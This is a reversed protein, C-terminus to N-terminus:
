REACSNCRSVTMSFRCVKAAKYLKVAAFLNSNDTLTIASMGLEKAQNVLKPIRILSNEVSYESHCHLHVFESIAM